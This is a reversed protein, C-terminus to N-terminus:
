WTSNTLGTGLIVQDFGNGDNDDTYVVTLQGWPDVGLAPEDQKGATAQSTLQRPLRGATTGDPNLGQSYIDNSVNTTVVVNRQDDIGIQPDTGAVAVDASGAVGTATFSRAGGDWAVAFDGNFNAAVAPRNQVGATVSNAVGQALKVGGSPTLIKRGVDGDAEWVIIANGAAGMAVDPDQHTGGAANVQVEYTKSSISAFGAARVTPASTSQKDEWVVAFGPGDPDIAVAPEFQQGDSNANATGSGSVAGSASVTRVAINYFGNGDPDEAWVVVATGDDRVAVDPQVHRWNGTGGTSIKKEYQSVGNHFLRIWVDSHVPDEPTATDRDDEWVVATYGNRAASVAANDQDGASASNASMWAVMAMILLTKM